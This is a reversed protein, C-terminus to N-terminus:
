IEKLIKRARSHFAATEQDWREEIVMRLENKIEPYEGALKQLVTLSFAKVAAAEGPSSIYSFCVTMLEGHFREPVDIYQLLRVTNRKISSHLKANRLNKILRGLHKQILEPHAIATYSIPWAARQALINEGNLFIDFLQDFREQSQGVWKTLRNCNAKSHEALIAARLNM